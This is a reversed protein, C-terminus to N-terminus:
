RTVLWDQLNDSTKEAVRLCGSKVILVAHGDEYRRYTNRAIINNRNM